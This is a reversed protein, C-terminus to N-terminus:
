YRTPAVLPRRSDVFTEYRAAKRGTRSRSPLRLSWDTLLASMSSRTSQISVDPRLRPPLAPVPRPVLDTRSVSPLSLAANSIATSSPLSTRLTTLSTVGGSYVGSSRSVQDFVSTRLNKRVAADVLSWAAHRNLKYPRRRLSTRRRRQDSM